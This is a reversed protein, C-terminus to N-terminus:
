HLKEKDAKLQLFLKILSEKIPPVHPYLKLLKHSSLHANARRAKLITNHEEVTFNEYTFNPDIYQIYLDLIENHSLVGPNVFNFNGKIGNITMDIAIPLLDDLMCFSNPVNIVKKYKLIKGVFGKELDEIPMKVRLNLVNPYELIIKELVIKMRSYFSGTFNPEDEETFGKGSYMPHADDYEYICGTSINTIHINLLYACDILNCTGIINTRITEQKHEECWDVNPKGIIGAANVIYDPKASTIEAFVDNRNEMRANACIAIHGQKRLLNVIKQGIWGTKGGYILFTKINNCETTAAIIAFFSLILSTM